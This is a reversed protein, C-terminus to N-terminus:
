SIIKQNEQFEECHTLTTILRLAVPTRARTCRMVATLLLLFVFVGKVVLKDKGKKRICGVTFLNLTACISLSILECLVVTSTQLLLACTCQECTYLIYHSRATDVKHALPLRTYKRQFTIATAHRPLFSTWGGQEQCSFLSLRTNQTVASVRGANNM